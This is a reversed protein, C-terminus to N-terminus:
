MFAVRHAMGFPCSNQQSFFIAADHRNGARFCRPLLSYALRRFIWRRGRDFLFALTISGSPHKIRALGIATLPSWPFPRVLAVGEGHLYWVDGQQFGLLARLLRFISYNHATQCNFPIGLGPM